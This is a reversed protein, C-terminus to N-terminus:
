RGRRAATPDRSLGADRWAWALRILTAAHADGGAAWDSRWTVVLRSPPGADVNLARLPELRESRPDPLGALTVPPRIRGGVACELGGVVLSRWAERVDLRVAQVTWGAHVGRLGDLLAETRADPEATLGVRVVGRHGARVLAAHACLADAAGLCRRAEPLTAAGAQTLAIRRRHSRDILPLGVEAELRRLRAALTTRPVGLAVSARGLHLEDAASVFAALEERDAM